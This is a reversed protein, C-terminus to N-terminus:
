LGDRPDRGQIFRAKASPKLSRPAPSTWCSPASFTKWCLRVVVVLQVPPVPVPKHVVQSFKTLDSWKEHGKDKAEGDVGDFKIYAAM